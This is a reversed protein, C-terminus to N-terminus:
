LLILLELAAWVAWACLLLWLLLAPWSLGHSGSRGGGAQSATRRPRHVQLWQRQFRLRSREEVAWLVALPALTGLVLLVWANVAICSNRCSDWSCAAASGEAIACVGGASAAGAAAPSVGSLQRQWGRLLEVLEAAPLRSPTYPAPRMEVRPLAVAPFCPASAVLPRCASLQMALGSGLQSAAGAM